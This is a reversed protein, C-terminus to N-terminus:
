DMIRSACNRLNARAIAPFIGAAVVDLPRMSTLTHRTHTTPVIRTHPVRLTRCRLPLFIRTAEAAQPTGSFPRTLINQQVWRFVISRVRWSPAPSCCTRERGGGHYGKGCARRSIHQGNRRARLQAGARPFPFPIGLWLEFPGHQRRWWPWDFAVREYRNLSFVIPVSLSLGVYWVPTTNFTSLLYSTKITDVGGARSLDCPPYRSAAQVAGLVPPTAPLRGFTEPGVV